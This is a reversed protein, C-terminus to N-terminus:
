LCGLKPIEPFVFFTVINDHSAIKFFQGIFQIRFSIVKCLEPSSFKVEIGMLFDLKVTSLYFSFQSM